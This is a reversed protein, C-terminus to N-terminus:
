ACGEWVRQRWANALEVQGQDNQAWVGGVRKKSHRPARRTAAEGPKLDFGEEPRQSYSRRRSGGPERRRRPDEDCVPCADVMGEGRQGGAQM